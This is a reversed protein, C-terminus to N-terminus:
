ISRILADLSTFTYYDSGDSVIHQYLLAHDVSPRSSSSSTASRLKEPGLNSASSAAGIRRANANLRQACFNILDARVECVRERWARSEEKDAESLDPTEGLKFKRQVADDLLVEWAEWEPPLRDLPVQPPMFGTRADVDFDHAALTSTDVVGEPPGDHVDPRPLNLFHNPPLDTM